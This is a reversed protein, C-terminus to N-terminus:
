RRWCFAYGNTLAVQQQSFEFIVFLASLSLFCAHTLLQNGDLPHLISFCNCEEWSYQLAWGRYKNLFLSSILDHSKTVRSFQFRPQRHSATEVRGCIYCMEGQETEHRPHLHTLIRQCFHVDSFLKAVKMNHELFLSVNSGLTMLLLRLWQDM